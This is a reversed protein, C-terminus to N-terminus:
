KGERKSGGSGMNRVDSKIKSINILFFFDHIKEVSRVISHVTQFSRVRTLSNIRDFLILLM